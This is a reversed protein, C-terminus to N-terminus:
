DNKIGRQTVALLRGTSGHRPVFLQADGTLQFAQFHIHDLSTKRGAGITVKLAYLGNGLHDLVRDDARQSTGVVTINGTSRFGQFGGFRAAQVEEQRGTGQVHFLLQAHCWILHKLM